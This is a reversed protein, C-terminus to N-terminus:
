YIIKIKELNLLMEKLTTGNIKEKLLDNFFYKEYTKNNSDILVFVDDQECIEGQYIRYIKNQYTFEIQNGKLLEIEIKNINM